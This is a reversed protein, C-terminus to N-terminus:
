PSTPTVIVPDGGSTTQSALETAPTHRVLRKVSQATCARLHHHVRALQQIVSHLDVGVDAEGRADGEEVHEIGHHTIIIVTIIMIKIIIIFEIIIHEHQM